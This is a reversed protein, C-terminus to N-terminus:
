SEACGFLHILLCIYLFAPGGQAPTSTLIRKTVFSLFDFRIGINVWAILFCSLQEQQLMKVFTVPVFMPFCHCSDCNLQSSNPRFDLHCKGSGPLGSLFEHRDNRAMMGGSSTKSRCHCGVWADAVKKVIRSRRAGGRMCLNGESGYANQYKRSM